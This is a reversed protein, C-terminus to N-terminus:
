VREKSAALVRCDSLKKHGRAIEEAMIRCTQMGCASCDYRPLKELVENVRRFEDMKETFSRTDENEIVMEKYLDEIPYDAVPLNEEGTLADIHNRTLYSNGWLLHGGICGNFCPFLYLMRFDNLLNFEEMSLIDNIKDFGDAILYEQKQVIVSPNAAQLGSRCFHVEERGEPFHARLQPFLDVIALTHDVEYTDNKYPEKALALKAECECMLFIGTEKGNERKRIQKAMVESPYNLPVLNDMLMPYSTEILRKIVPCFSAIGNGHDLEECIRQTERKLQGEVPSLDIVEDFGLQKIAYFLREAEELSKCVSSLASPVLCVTYPYDRIAELSSGSAVLGKSHCAKICQGCNICRDKNISIRDDVLTVASVPCAKVCKLCHVCHSLTYTISTRRM